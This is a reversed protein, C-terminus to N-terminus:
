SILNATVGPNDALWERLHSFVKMRRDVDALPADASWLVGVEFTDMGRPESPCGQERLYDRLSDMLAPDSIEIHM